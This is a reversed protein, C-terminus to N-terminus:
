HRTASKALTTIMQETMGDPLIFRFNGSQGVDLTLVTEGKPGRGIGFSTTEFAAVVTRGQEDRGHNLQMAALEIINSIEKHPFGLMLDSGDECKVQILFTQGDKSTMSGEASLFVEVPIKLSNM